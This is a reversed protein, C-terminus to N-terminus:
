SNQSQRMSLGTLGCDAIIQQQTAPDNIDAVIVEGTRPNLRKQGSYSAFFDTLQRYEGATSASCALDMAPCGNPKHQILRKAKEGLLSTALQVELTQLSLLFIFLVARQTAANPIQLFLSFAINSDTFQKRIESGLNNLPYAQYGEGVRNHKVLMRRIDYSSYGQLTGTVDKVVMPAGDLPIEKIREMPFFRTPGESWHRRLDLPNTRKYHWHPIVKGINTFLEPTKCLREWYVGYSYGIIEGKKIPARTIAGKIYITAGDLIYPMPLITVNSTAISNKVESNVCQINDLENDVTCSDISRLIERLMQKLLAIPNSNTEAHIRRLYTTTLEKYPKIYSMQAMGVLVAGAVTRDDANKYRPNKRFNAINSDIDRTCDHPLHQMFAAMGRCELADVWLGDEYSSLHSREAPQRDILMGSYIGLVSNIPLDIEAFMGYGLEEGMYALCLGSVPQQLTRTFVAPPISSDVTAPEPKYNKLKRLLSPNKYYLGECFTIGLREEVQAIALTEKQAGPLAPPRDYVNITEPLPQSILTRVPADKCQEDEPSLGMPVTINEIFNQADRPDAFHSLLKDLGTRHM